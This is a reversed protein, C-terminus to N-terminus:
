GGFGGAIGQRLNKIEPVAIRLAESLRFVTAPDGKKWLTWASFRSALAMFGAAPAIMEVESPVREFGSETAPYKIAVTRTSQM